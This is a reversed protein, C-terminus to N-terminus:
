GNSLRNDSLGRSYPLASNEDIGFKRAPSPEFEQLSTGCPSRHPARRRFAQADRRSRRTQVQPIEFWLRPSHTNKSLFAGDAAKVSPHGSNQLNGAVRLRLTMTQRQRM